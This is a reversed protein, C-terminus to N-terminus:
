RVPTLTLTGRRGRDDNPIQGDADRIEVTLAGDAAIRIVGFNLFSPRVPDSRRGQAYLEIPGFTRSPPRIVGTGANAPGAIFEHFVLGALDGAPEYRLVRAYHIDTAVWVVNTIKETKLFMLITRLESEFGLPSDQNGDTDTNLKMGAAWGDRVTYLPKREGEPTFLLYSGTPSSLPDDTSIIKWVVGREQAAKLGKLLWDRQEAGLITKAKGELRRREGNPLRVDLSKQPGDPLINDDRYSRADIVFIEALRGHAFRRYIQGAGDARTPTFEFFATRGPVSLATMPRTDQTERIVGIQSEGPYWDNVVEHDDWQFYHPTQARFRRYAEDELNYKWKARYATLVEAPTKWRPDAASVLQHFAVEPDASLANRAHDSLTTTPPCTSDTYVSDGNGIAVDPNLRTMQTFITYGREPDRCYGQGGLDGWWILSLARIADAAPATKFQGAESAVESGDRPDVFRVWYVYRTDPALGDLLVKGTFDDKADIRPGPTRVLLAASKGAGIYDVMMQAARNARAWIVVGTPTVDGSAIGHTIRLPEAMRLTGACGTATLLVLSALLAHRCRLALMM